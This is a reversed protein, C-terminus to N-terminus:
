SPALEQVGVEGIATRVKENIQGIARSVPDDCKLYSKWGKSVWKCTLASGQSAMGLLIICTLFATIRM